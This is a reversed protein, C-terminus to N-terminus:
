GDRMTQSMVMRRALVMLQATRWDHVIVLVIRGVV